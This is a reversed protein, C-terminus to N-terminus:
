ALGSIIALSFEEGRLFHTSSITAGTKKYHIAILVDTVSEPIGPRTFPKKDRKFSVNTWHFSRSGKLLLM